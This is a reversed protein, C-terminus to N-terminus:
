GVRIRAAGPFREAFSKVDAAPLRAARLALRARAQDAAQENTRPMDKFPEPEDMAQADDLIGKGLRVAEAFDSDSLREKLFLMLATAAEESLPAEDYAARPNSNIFLRAHNTGRPSPMAKKM